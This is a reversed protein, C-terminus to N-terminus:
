PRSRPGAGAFRGPGPDASRIGGAAPGRHTRRRVRGRAGGRPCCAGPPRSALLEELQDETSIILVGDLITYSLGIQRLMLRLTTRLPVGSLNITVPSDRTEAAEELGVPDVYIPLGQQLDKDATAQKIYNLIDELPTESEFPMEIPEDLKARIVQSRADQGGPQYEDNIPPGDGEEGPLPGGTDLTRALM